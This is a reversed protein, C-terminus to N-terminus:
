HYRVDWFVTNYGLVGVPIAYASFEIIHDPYADLLYELQNFSPTDLCTKLRCLAASGHYQRARKLAIAMKTQETSGFLYWSQHDITTDGQLLLTHDPMSENVSIRDRLGGAREIELVAGPIEDSRLEYRRFAEHGGSRYRLSYTGPRNGLAIFQDVNAWTIPKNGFLGQEYLAASKTKSTLVKRAKRM